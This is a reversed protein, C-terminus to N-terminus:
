RVFFRNWTMWFFVGSSLLWVAELPWYWKPRSKQLAVSAWPLITTVQWQGFRQDGFLVEYISLMAIPLVFMVGFTPSRYPWEILRDFATSCDTASAVPNEDTRDDTTTAM